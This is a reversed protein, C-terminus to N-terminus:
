LVPHRNLTHSHIERQLEWHLPGSLLQLYHVKCIECCFFAWPRQTTRRRTVCSWSM